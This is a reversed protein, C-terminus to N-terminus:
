FQVAGEVQVQAKYLNKKYSEINPALETAKKLYLTAERIKGIKMCVLGANNYAQALSPKLEIAKYFSKLAEGPNGREANLIGLHNYAEAYYPDLMLATRLEREAEELRGQRLFVMCLNNYIVSDGPKLSMAKRLQTEAEEFLMQETYAFGLNTYAEAYDSKLKVATNFYQIAKQNLGMTMFAYGLNNYARPKQPSKEVVDEWLKVEETWVTNRGFAAIVLIVVVTMLLFNVATDMWRAHPKSISGFLFFAAALGVAAGISPLYVRHECIVDAIPFVSSEVSITIFFWFIGFAILRFESPSRSNSVQAWSTLRCLYVGTGFLAALFFFSLFVEPDTFSHYIPWDYDLNQGIPLVLLRIYTIIVRFQTFLYDWRSLASQLRTADRVTGIIQDLPKDLPILTLPILLMSLLLPILWLVRKKIEGQFFMFEYLAIILPLTFAIEKTKMALIASVVSALYWPTSKLSGSSSRRDTSRLEDEISRPRLRWKIYIVLSLLYFTTALSAFRQVIYTVAQTQVPHVVFLLGSFLAINDSYDKLSSKALFFTKFSLVVLFYVLIGNIIHVALNVIHYGAVDLGHLKYNLAFTLLGFWRSGTPPWLNNLDKITHNEVINGIDDFLFPVQFTNSYALLGLLFILLIHSGPKHLFSDSVVSGAAPQKQESIM